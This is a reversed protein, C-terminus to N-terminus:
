SNSVGALVRIGGGHTRNSTYRFVISTTYSFRSKQRAMAMVLNTMSGLSFRGAM